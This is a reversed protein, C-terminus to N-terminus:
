ETTKESLFAFIRQMENLSGQIPKLRDYGYKTIAAEPFMPFQPQLQGNSRLLFAEEGRRLAM